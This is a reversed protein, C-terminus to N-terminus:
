REQKLTAGSLDIRLSPRSSKLYNVLCCQWRCCEQGVVCLVFKHNEEDMEQGQLYIRKDGESLGRRWWVLVEKKLRKSYVKDCISQPFCRNLSSMEQCCHVARSLQLVALARDVGKEVGALSLFFFYERSHFVLPFLPLSSPICEAGVTLCYPVVNPKYLLHSLPSSQKPQHPNNFHLWCSRIECRLSKRELSKWCPSWKFDHCFWVTQDPM